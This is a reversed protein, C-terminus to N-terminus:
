NVKDRGTGDTHIRYFTDKEAITYYIWDGAINLRQSHDSNIVTKGTGDTRVKCISELDDVSVYYIWDGVVNIDEVNDNIVITEGTGDTRM